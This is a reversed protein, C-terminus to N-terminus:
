RHDRLSATSTIVTGDYLTIIELYLDRERDKTLTRKGWAALDRTYDDGVKTDVMWGGKGARKSRVRVSGHVGVTSSRALDFKRGLSGCNPCPRRAEFELDRPEDLVQECVGCLVTVSPEPRPDPQKRSRSRVAKLKLEHEHSRCVSWTEPPTEPFAIQVTHTGAEACQVWECTVLDTHRLPIAPFV